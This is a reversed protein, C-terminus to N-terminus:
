VDPEQKIQTSSSWDHQWDNGTKNAPQTPKKDAQEGHDTMQSFAKMDDVAESMKKEVGKEGVFKIHDNAKVFADTVRTCSAKIRQDEKYRGYTIGLKKFDNDELQILTDGTIGEQPRRNFDGIM